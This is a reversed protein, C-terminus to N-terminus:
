LNTDSALELEIGDLSHEMIIQCSLRSTPRLEAVLELVAEEEESRPPLKDVWKEAVYVHCTACVCCGGCLAAILIGADRIAEMAKDGEEAKVDHQNGITDTLSIQM